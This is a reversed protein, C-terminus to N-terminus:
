FEVKLTYSGRRGLDDQPIANVARRAYDPYVLLRDNANRFSLTHDMRVRGFPHSYGASLSGTWQSPIRAFPGKCAGTLSALASAHLGDTTYSLGSRIHYKPPYNFNSFGSTSGTQDGRITGLLWDLNVMGRWRESGQWKLEIELATSQFTQGNIYTFAGSDAPSVRQITDRYWARYLLTQLLLDKFTGVYALELSSAKEPLLGPNGTIVGPVAAYVEFLTPARFSEGAIAKLAHRDNLTWVATARSSLNSGALANQTFRTGMLMTFAGSQYHGQLFCSREQVSRDEMGFSSTLPGSPGFDTHLTDSGSRRDEYDGGLELALTSSTRWNLKVNLTRRSGDWRDLEADPSRHTERVTKDWAARAQLGVPGFSESYTYAVLHGYEPGDRGLGRAVTMTAGMVPETHRFSSMLLSHSGYDLRLLGSRTSLTNRFPTAVGDEGSFLYSPGKLDQTSAAFVYQLEGNSGGLRGGGQRSGLTGASFRAEGEENWARRLVINVAGTYANSGYLVSAPGRLVEVREVDRPDIRWLATQATGTIADWVPIGDILFLVKTAYHEQLIGRSTPIGQSINGRLVELGPVTNLLDALTEFNYRAIFGRELITVTSPTTLMSEPRTSSVQIPTAMLALLDAPVEPDTGKLALSTLALLLARGNRRSSVSFLPSM